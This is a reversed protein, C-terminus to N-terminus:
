GSRTIANDYYMLLIDDEQLIQEPLREGIAKITEYDRDSWCKKFGARVAETRFIRLKGKSSSYEEFERILAKDRVKELDAQKNPDPIYWKGVPDQLFNQEFIQTLEPLKEFKDKHLERLFKPQIEQYTQSNESLENRLWQVASKEDHVFLSSQEIRKATIRKKDYELAEDELFYMGDREPFRQRLGAYFDSASIPVIVGRQVHFAVMRDFLLYPQREPVVQLIGEKEVFVPLHKLHHRIFDWVGDLTGAILKFNEELHADPKYASIILDQKVANPTAKQYFTGQKKDLTRVDAVIFGARALAEQIAMWVANQSNHFEVTMWHGVKLIRFFERFCEEMLAQYEKLGKRQSKSIVAEKENNTLVGIWNEWLYNLEAYQLNSGFPPDIFIYDCSNQPIQPFSHASGTSIKVTNSSPILGFLTKIDKLKRPFVDFPSVEVSIAPIFFTGQLKPTGGPKVPQYIRMRNIHVHLASLVFLLPLNQKNKAEQIFASFILLNRKTYYHHLHTIGHTKKPHAYLDGDPMKTTPFWFHINERDIKKILALDESDPKKNYRRQKNKGELVSYNIIVPIQKARKITEQLVDDYYSEWSRELQNKKPESGCFPCIIKEKFEGSSQEVAIDWYILEHSCSPCIFIDSWITYHIRGKKPKKEGNLDEEYQIKEDIAHNTEFLWGWEAEMKRHTALATDEFVQLDPHYNYNYAIFTAMPSLDNLIANRHGWSVGPMEREILEKFKLDPNGCLQAAIGTMGTGCFGDFVIDGPKTYHLIYRMIARHPVKTHYSHANYIPDNKGESIDVTIPHRSVYEGFPSEDPSSIANEEVEDLWPNICATFFPPDSLAIIDKDRGIPFGEISRIKDLEDKSLIHNKAM